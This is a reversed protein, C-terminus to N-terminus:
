QPSVVRDGVQVTDDIELILGYSLHEFPRFVMM